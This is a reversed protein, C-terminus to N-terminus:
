HSLLDKYDYNGAEFTGPAAGCAENYGGDGGDAVGKWARTYLPAGLVIQEPAVGANLYAEVTEIDYGAPDGTFAAQHGTTDEWTGHFDYTMVNFFDSVPWVLLISILLRTSDLRLPSQSRMRGELNRGLDDLKARVDAMLLAYNAGDNPSASNGAEGGGGPYEWDTLEM